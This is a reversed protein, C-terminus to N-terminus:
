KPYILFTVSSRLYFWYKDWSKRTEYSIEASEESLVPIDPTHSKLESVIIKHAALDAKTLPSEDTKHEVGFDETNYIELIADGAKIATKEIKNLLDIM